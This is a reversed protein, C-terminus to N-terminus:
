DSGAPAVSGSALKGSMKIAKVAGTAGAQLTFGLALLVIGASRLLIAGLTVRATL